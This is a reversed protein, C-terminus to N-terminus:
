PRDKPAPATAPRFKLFESLEAPLTGASGPLTDWLDALAAAELLRQRGPGEPNQNKMAALVAADKRYLRLSRLVAERAIEVSASGDAVLAMQYAAIAEQPKGQAELAQGLCYAAQVRQTGPLLRDKLYERASTEARPWDKRRVADWTAYLDLQRRQSERVLGRRDFSELAKALAELEGSKRLCELEMFAAEACPNGDFGALGKFEERLAAFKARAATFSGSVFLAQAEAMAPTSFVHLSKIESRPIRRTATAEPQDKCILNQEDSGTIWLSQGTGNTRLLAVLPAPAAALPAVTIWAAILFRAKM